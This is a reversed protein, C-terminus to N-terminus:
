SNEELIQILRKRHKVELDEGIRETARGSLLQINKTLKDVADILDRYKARGRKKVMAVLVKDREAIMKKVVPSIVEQFSQTEVVKGPIKSVSESYGHRRMITGIVVKKGKRITQLIESAVAKANESNKKRRKKAM